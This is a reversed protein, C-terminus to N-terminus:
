HEFYGRKSVGASRKVFTLRSLKLHPRFISPPVPHSQPRVFPQVSVVSISSFQNDVVHGLVIM